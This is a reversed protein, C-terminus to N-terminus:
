DSEAATQKIYYGFKNYQLRCQPFKLCDHAEQIKDFAEQNGSVPNQAPNYKANLRLYRAEVEENSVKTTNFEM